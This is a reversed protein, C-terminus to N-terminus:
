VNKKLFDIIKKRGYYNFIGLYFGYLIMKIFFCFRNNSSYMKATFKYFTRYSIRKNNAKDSRMYKDIDDKTILEIHNYNERIYESGLHQLVKNNVSIGMPNIRYYNLVKPINYMKIKKNCARLLFDYDEFPGIERYKKLYLYVSKKVMWTTHYMCDAINILYSYIDATNNPYHVTRVVADNMNIFSFDTSIVDYEDIYKIQEEFRRPMAIDDGDLRAIIEGSVLDIANNLSKVLGINKKNIYLNIRSDSNEYERAVKILEKNNPDDLILWLEWKTYTQSIISDIAKSFIRADENYCPMIVSIMKKNIFENM